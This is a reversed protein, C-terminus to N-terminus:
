ANKIDKRGRDFAALNIELAKKPVREGLRAKWDRVKIAPSLASLCGLLYANLARADGLQKATQTGEVFYIHKTRQRFISRIDKDAPYKETGTNVSLPPIAQNNIIATGEPRLYGCWRGGELKEFAILIDAASEKILPSWVKEGLRVHSVVAGGRQAMGLADTKKTDYGAGLAAQCIIDSALIIGQGGVGTLLIDLKEM